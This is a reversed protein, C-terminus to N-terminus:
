QIFILIEHTWVATKCVSNLQRQGLGTTPFSDWTKEEKYSIQSVGTTKGQQTHHEKQNHYTYKKKLALSQKELGQWM